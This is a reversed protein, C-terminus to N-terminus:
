RWSSFGPRTFTSTTWRGARELGAGLVRALGLVLMFVPVSLLHAVSAAHGTALHTALIVLNGTIHAIFLGGLGFFGIVDASGAILSLVPPLLKLGM